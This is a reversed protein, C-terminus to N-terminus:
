AKSSGKHKAPMWPLSAAAGGFYTTAPSPSFGRMARDVLVASKPLLTTILSRSFFAGYWTSTCIVLSSTASTCHAMARSLMGLASSPGGVKVRSGESPTSPMLSM